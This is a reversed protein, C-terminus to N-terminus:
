ETGARLSRHRRARVSCTARNSCNKRTHSRAVQASKESVMSLMCLGHFLAFVATISPAITERFDADFPALM